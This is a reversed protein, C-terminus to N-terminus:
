TPSPSRACWGRARSRMSSSTSMASPATRFSTPSSALRIDHGTGEVNATPTNNLVNNGIGGALGKTPYGGTDIAVPGFRWNVGLERGATRNVELIRVHLNVQQGDGLTM